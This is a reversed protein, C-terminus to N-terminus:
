FDILQDIFSNQVSASDGGFHKKAYSTGPPVQPGSGSSMGPAGSQSGDPNTTEIGSITQLLPEYNDEIVEIRPPNYIKKM